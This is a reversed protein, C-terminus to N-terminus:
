YEEYKVLIGDLGISAEESLGGIINKMKNLGEFINTISSEKLLFYTEEELGITLRLGQMEIDNAYYRFGDMERLQSKKEFVNEISLFPSYYTDIFKKTNIEFDRNTKDDPDDILSVIRDYGINTACASFTAPTQNHITSVQGVQEKADALKSELQGQTTGKSEFVHWNGDPSLGVLDPERKPDGLNRTFIIADQKKLTEVHILNPIDLLKESYYKAFAMGLNYSVIRKQDSVYTDYIRHLRIGNLDSEINVSVLSIKDTISNFIARSFGLNRIQKWSLFSPNGVTIM